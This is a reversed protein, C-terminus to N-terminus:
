TDFSREIEYNLFSTATHGTDTSLRLEFSGDYSFPTKEFVDASYGTGMKFWIASGGLIYYDNTGNTLWLRIGISTTDTNNIILSRIDIQTSATYTNRVPGIVNTAGGTHNTEITIM